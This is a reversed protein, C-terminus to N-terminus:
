QRLNISLVQADGAMNDGGDGTVRQLRLRYSEGSELADAQAQTLVITTRTIVGSTGNTTNNATQQAAFSDSDIDTGGANNREIEIGWTM